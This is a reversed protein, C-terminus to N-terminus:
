VPQNLQKKINRNKYIHYIAMIYLLIFSGNIFYFGYIIDEFDNVISKIILTFHLIIPLTIISLFVHELFDLKSTSYRLSALFITLSLLISFSIDFVSFFLSFDFIADYLVYCYDGLIAIYLILLIAKLIKLASNKLIYKFILFLLYLVVVLVPITVTLYHIVNGDNDFLYEIPVTGSIYPMFLGAIFVIVSAIKIYERRIKKM